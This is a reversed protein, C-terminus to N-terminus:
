AGSMCERLLAIIPLATLTTDNVMTRDGKAVLLIVRADSRTDMTLQYLELKLACEERTKQDTMNERCVGNM